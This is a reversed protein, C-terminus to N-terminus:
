CPFAGNLAVVRVGGGSRWTITDSVIGFAPLATGFTWHEVTGDSSTFTGSTAGSCGQSALIGLRTHARHAMARRKAADFTQRVVLSTSGAIGILAITVIMLAVLVEVVSLGARSYQTTRM